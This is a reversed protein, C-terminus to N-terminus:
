ASRLVSRSVGGTPPASVTSHCETGISLEKTYWDCTPCIRCKIEHKRTCCERFPGRQTCVPVYSIDICEQVPPPPPPPPGIGGGGGDVQWDGGFLGANAWKELCHLEACQGGVCTDCNVGANEDKLVAPSLPFQMTLSLNLINGRYQGRTKYLSAEANLAPISM